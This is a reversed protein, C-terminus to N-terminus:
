KGNGANGFGSDFFEHRKRDEITKATYKLQTLTKADYRNKSIDNKVLRVVLQNLKSDPEIESIAQSGDAHLIAIIPQKSDRRANATWYNPHPFLITLEREDNCDFKVLYSGDDHVPGADRYSISNVSALKPALDETLPVPIKTPDVLQASVSATAAFALAVFIPIRM